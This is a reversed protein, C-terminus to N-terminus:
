RTLRYLEEYAVEDKFIDFVDQQWPNSCNAGGGVTRVGADTM